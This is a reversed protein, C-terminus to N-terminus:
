IRPILCAQCYRCRTMEEPQLPCDRLVPWFFVGATEPLPWM